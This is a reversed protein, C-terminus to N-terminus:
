VCGKGRESVYTLVNVSTPPAESPYRLPTHLMLNWSCPFSSDILPM